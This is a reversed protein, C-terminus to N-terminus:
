PNAAFVSIIEAETSDKKSAIEFIEYNKLLRRFICISFHCGM